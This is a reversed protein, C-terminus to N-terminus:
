LFINGLARSFDNGTGFPMIGIALNEFTCGANILETVVFMVTGDGGCVIIRMNGNNQM